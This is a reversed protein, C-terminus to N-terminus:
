ADEREIQLAPLRREPGFEMTRPDIVIDATVGPPLRALESLISRALENFPKSVRLRAGHDAIAYVRYVFYPREKAAESLEGPSIFVKNSFPGGTSKVEVWQEAGDNLVRYFDAPAYPDREKSIWIFERIKCDQVQAKFRENIFTEGEQGVKEAEKRLAEVNQRERSAEAFTEPIQWPSAQREDANLSGSNEDEERNTRRRDERSFPEVGAIAYTQAKTDRLGWGQGSIERFLNPISASGRNRYTESEHNHLQMMEAAAKNPTKADPKVLLNRDRWLGGAKDKIAGHREFGPYEPFAEILASLRQERRVHRLSNAM